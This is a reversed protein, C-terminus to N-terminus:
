EPSPSIRPRGARRRVPGAHAPRHEAAAGARALERAAYDSMRELLAEREPVADAKDAGLAAHLEVLLWPRHYAERGLMVGDCWSLAELVSRTAAPRREVDRFGPSVNEWPRVVEYRLPPVERNEKPSLGGLVAKRAHVISRLLVRRRCPPSLVWSHRTM